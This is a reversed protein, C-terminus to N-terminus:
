VTQNCVVQGIDYESLRDLIMNMHCLQKLWISYISEYDRHWACECLLIKGCLPSEQTLQKKHPDDGNSMFSKKSSDSQVM